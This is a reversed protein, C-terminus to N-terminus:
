HINLPLEVVAGLGGQSKNILFVKGNHESIIDRTVALGLGAGGTDRSRPIGVGIFPNM